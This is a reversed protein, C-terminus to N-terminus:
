SKHLPTASLAVLDQAGVVFMITRLETTLQRLVREVARADETAPRLLPAALGVLQAGLAICKAAELGNRIGGSAILPLNSLEARCECLADATSIGWDQFISALRAEESTRARHGEVRSWSTGGAGAVDVAAVGAAALRRATEGSIGWGVEKVIVPITLSKCVAEIKSLLHSFNTNGEPQLAEQLPNLHLILGDAEVIEVARRCDDTSYQYNLQVAGLNSFIPIDPAIDRVRFTKALKPHELAPRVSGLAFAIRLSQAAEALARNIHQAKPTGGTMSSILIPAGLRRGLFSTTLDISALNVEPLAQHSFSYHELGNTRGSQVNSDLNIRIHDDKRSSLSAVKPM